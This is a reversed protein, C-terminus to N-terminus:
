INCGVSQTSYGCPLPHTIGNPEECQTIDNALAVGHPADPFIHVEFSVKAKAYANALLLTNEVAVVQDNATHLLFAPSSREDVACDVSCMLREELSLKESSLLNKFSDEHAFPKTGVVVPYILMVGAPKPCGYTMSTQKYIESHHWMTALCGALHGGASFGMAFIHQEDIQYQEAHTKIFQMALAAQILQAPHVANSTSSTSYHLVFCQYGYSMFELAIPQGLPNKRKYAYYM